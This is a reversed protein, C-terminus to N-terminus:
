RILVDGCAQTEHFSENKWNENIRKILNKDRLKRPNFYYNNTFTIGIINLKKKMWQCIDDRNTELYISELKQKLCFEKLQFLLFLFGEIADCYFDSIYVINMKYLITFYAIPSGKQFAALYAAKALPYQDYKWSYFQPSRYISFFYRSNIVELLSDLESPYNDYIELTYSVDSTLLNDKLASVNFHYSSVEIKKWMKNFSQRADPSSHYAGIIPEQKMARLLTQASGLKNANPLRRWGRWIIANVPNERLVFQIHFNYGMSNIRENCFVAYYDHRNYKFPNGTYIYHYLNEDSNYDKGYTVINEFAMLGPLPDSGEQVDCKQNESLDSVPLIDVIGSYSKYFGRILSQIVRNSLMQKGSLHMMQKYFAGTILNGISEENEWIVGKCGYSRLYESLDYALNQSIRGCSVAYYPPIFNLHNQFDDYSQKISRSLEQRSLSTVDVHHGYCAITVLPDNLFDKKIDKWSLYESQFDQQKKDSSLTKPNMLGPSLAVTYPIRYKSLFPKISYITHSFGDFILCFNIGSLNKYDHVQDLSVFRGLFSLFRIQKKLANIHIAPLTQVSNGAGIKGIHHYNFVFLRKQKNLIPKAFNRVKQLRNKLITM